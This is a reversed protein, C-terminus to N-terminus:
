RQKQKRERKREGWDSIKSIRETEVKERRGKQEIEM